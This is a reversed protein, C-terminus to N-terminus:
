RHDNDSWARRYRADLSAPFAVNDDDYDGSDARTHCAACNAASKVAPHKWVQPDIKRHKREFWASRTIRDEPPPEKVRRATGAHAQLWVSIQRVTAEDLSADTGYHQGLGNMISSWSGSPLFAPPYAIHCAACEQKYAPLVNPPLQSGDDAHAQSVLALYPMTLLSGLVLRLAMASRAAPRIPPLTDM